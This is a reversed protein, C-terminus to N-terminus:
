GQPPLRDGQWTSLTGGAALAYTRGAAAGDLHPYRLESVYALPTGLADDAVSGAGVEVGHRLLPGGPLDARARGSWFGQREGTRGIQVRERMRIGALEALEIRVDSHHRSDAAVVTPEVDVDIEGACDIEWRSLSERTRPGPLVITAAVSRVRLAAGPQVVLRIEIHDGGLPTAATSVLHVTDVGTIRVALGGSCEIRPTRRPEAVVLVRSRM